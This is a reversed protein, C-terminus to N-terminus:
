SPPRLAVGAEPTYVLFTMTEQLYLEVGTADHSLYGISTDQGLYLAYDGGRVSLLFAGDIAPAWLIKGDVLKELQDRIPYGYDSTASVAGYADTSLVLAYPGAVGALRLATLAHSAVDPYRHVDAPLDLAPNSTAARIGTISAAPYGEFIARDEAYAIKKAADKLPQWDPDHAGREVDDIASRSLTFPVRLEVLGQTHRLRGTVGDAPADIDLLHGTGVASLVLGARDQVDTVRRGAVSVTFTRRAEEEMSAWAADSIPALERHLNNM